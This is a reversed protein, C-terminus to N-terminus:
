CLEYTKEIPKGLITKYFLKLEKVEQKSLDRKTRRLYEGLDKVNLFCRSDEASDKISRFLVWNRTKNEYFVGDKNLQVALIPEYSPIQSRSNIMIRLSVTPSNFWELRNRDYFSFEDLIPKQGREDYFLYTSLFKEVMVYSISNLFNICNDFNKEECENMILDHEELFGNFYEVFKEQEHCYYRLEAFKLARQYKFTTNM